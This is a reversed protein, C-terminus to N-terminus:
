FEILDIFKQKVGANSTHLTNFALNIVVLIKKSNSSFMLLILGGERPTNQNYPYVQEPIYPIEAPGLVPSSMDSKLVTM